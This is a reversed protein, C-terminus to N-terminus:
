IEAMPQVFNKPLFPKELFRKVRFWFGTEWAIPFTFISRIGFLGSGLVDTYIQDGVIATEEPLYGRERMIRMATRIGPKKARNVYDVGLQAAFRAPRDGRNNSLIFPEIGAGRLSAIWEALRPDATHIHYPALTNDLDMMLFRVGLERLTEPTLQYIDHLQITPIPLPM